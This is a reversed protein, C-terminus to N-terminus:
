SEWVEGPKLIIVQSDPSQKRCLAQFEMPDQKIADFTNYHMPIVYKPKMDGVALAAEKPGMTFRGGIPILLTDIRYLEALTDFGKFYGTDGMHYLCRGGLRLIFGVPIGINSTHEAHVLVVEIKGSAYPGGINAHEVNQVGQENTYSAIDLVSHFTAGDRQALEIGFALDHDPHDHTVFVHDLRPIAQSDVPHLPNKAWVDIALVTESDEVLFGSHAIYTIKM